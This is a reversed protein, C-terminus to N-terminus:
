PRYPLAGTAFGWIVAAAPLGLMLALYLGGGLMVFDRPRRSVKAALATCAELAWVALPTGIALAVLCLWEVM